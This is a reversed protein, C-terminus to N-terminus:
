LQPFVSSALESSSFGKKKTWTTRQITEMCWATCSCSNRLSSLVIRPNSKFCANTLNLAHLPISDSAARRESDARQVIRLRVREQAVPSLIGMSICLCNWVPSVDLSLSQFLTVETSVVSKEVIDQMKMSINVSVEALPFRVHLAKKIFLMEQFCSNQRKSNSHM